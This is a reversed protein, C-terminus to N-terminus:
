RRIRYSCLFDSREPVFFVQYPFIDLSCGQVKVRGFRLEEKEVTTTDVEETKDFCDEIQRFSQLSWAHLPVCKM